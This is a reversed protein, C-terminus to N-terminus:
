REDATISLTRAPFRLRAMMADRFAAAGVATLEGGELTVVSEWGYRSLFETDVADPTTSDTSDGPARYRVRVTSAMETYDQVIEAVENVPLRYTPNAPIVRP